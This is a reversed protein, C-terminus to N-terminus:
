VNRKRLLKRGRILCSIEHLLGRVGLNLATLEKLVKEDSIKGDLQGSVLERYRNLSEQVRTFHEGLGHGLGSSAEEIYEIRTKLLDIETSWKTELGAARSKEGLKRAIYIEDLMGACLTFDTAWEALESLLPQKHLRGHILRIGIASYAALSLAVLAVALAIWDGVDM